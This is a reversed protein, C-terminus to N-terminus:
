VFAGQEIVVQWIRKEDGGFVYISGLLASEARMIETHWPYTDTNSAGSRGDYRGGQEVDETYALQFITHRQDRWHRWDLEKVHPRSAVRRPRPRGEPTEGRGQWLDAKVAGTIFGIMEQLDLTFGAQPLKAITQCTV